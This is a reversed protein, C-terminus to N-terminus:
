FWVYIVFWIILIPAVVFAWIGLFLHGFKEEAKQGSPDWEHFANEIILKNMLLVVQAMLFGVQFNPDQSPLGDLQKQLDELTM